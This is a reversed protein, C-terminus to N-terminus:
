AFYLIVVTTDDHHRRRDRGPPLSAMEDFSRGYESASRFIVHHVLAQAALDHHGLSAYHAVLDVAEQNTVFDWVGDSGLILFRDNPTLTRSQLDPTSSIYPPTYPPAIYRGGGRRETYPSGNFLVDKFAFDGFARTPQLGGKVYCADEHRCLVIDQEDPHADILKEQESAYKANHDRSMAIALTSGNIETGLVARVDGANAVILADDSAYALLACSGVRNVVGFGLEFAPLLTKKLLEDTNAFAQPIAEFPKAQALARRTENVLHTHVFEAVQWGGHGDMVAALVGQEADVHVNWRDENPFNARYSAAYHRHVGGVPRPLHQGELADYELVRTQPPPAACTGSDCDEAAVAAVVALAVVAALSLM